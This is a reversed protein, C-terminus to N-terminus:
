EYLNANNSLYILVCLCVSVAVRDCMTQFWWFNSGLYTSNNRENKKPTVESDGNMQSLGDCKRADTDYIYGFTEPSAV